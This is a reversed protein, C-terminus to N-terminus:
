TRSISLVTLSPRLTPIVADTRFLTVRRLAELLPRHLAPAIALHVIAAIIALLVCLMVMLACDLACNGGCPLGGEDQIATATATPAVTGTSTAANVPAHIGATAAPVDATASHGGHASASLAPMQAGSHMALVGILLAALALVALLITRLGPRRLARVRSGAPPVM